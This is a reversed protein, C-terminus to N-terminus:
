GGTIVWFILYLFGLWLVTAVILGLCSTEEVRLLLFIPRTLLRFIGWVVDFIFKVISEALDLRPERLPNMM